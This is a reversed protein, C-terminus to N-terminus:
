SPARALSSRTPSGSRRARDIKPNPIPHALKILAVDHKGDLGKALFEERVFIKAAPIKITKTRDNDGYGVVIDSPDKVTAPGVNLDGSTVCHSATLIWQPAIITGGCFGFQESMSPYLRVQWPYKGEPAETGNVIMENDDAALAQGCLAGLTLFLTVAFADFRSM